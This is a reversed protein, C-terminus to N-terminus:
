EVETYLDVVEPGDFMEAFQPIIRTFHETANHIDIAEQDKWIEIFCHIREDSISQNSSYAINGEEARSKEVLEKALAQYQPICEKRIIQKAVIKIM